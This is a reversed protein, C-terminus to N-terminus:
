FIDIANVYRIVVDYSDSAHYIVNFYGLVRANGLFLIFTSNLVQSQHILFVHKALHLIVM